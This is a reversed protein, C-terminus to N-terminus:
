VIIGAVSVTLITTSPSPKEVLEPYQLRKRQIHLIDEGLEQRCESWVHDPRSLNNSVLLMVFLSRLYSGSSWQSAQKIAEVYEKDDDLVGLEYCADKFTPCVKGNVTRIDEFCTPGKVKNLLIRLYYAEGTSPPVHHIRGLKFRQKRPSWCRNTADWVYKNPFETYTLKRADEDFTNREMWSTFMSHAVSPNEIIDHLDDDDDFIVSQEGPLHFPLREVAVTRYHIENGFIRWAAECASIYRCDYYEKIEDVNRGDVEGNEDSNTTVIGATIRDPGKNIYKFLYKIAGTQNCWEVNIHSQYRKLLFSNYPVVFGNNLVSDGKSVYCGNDRRRYLPYGADDVSTHQRFPKPFLKSCRKQDNMCPSKPNQTGCPGHLMFDAVLEYLEPDKSKDPIEASIINDVHQSTPFKYPAKLFLCIHSHPLGRKQFEITYVVAEVEGFVHNDKFDKIMSDLKMKFVRSLIDPRDESNLDKNNLFRVIEPWKPNCTFTIFLDPYGFHRVIAMADLYNQMMYRSGGTFSSPLIIRKGTNSAKTNGGIVNNRVDKYNDSRLKKKQSRIYSLREAEMMTYADVLFQQYLKKAMHLLSPTYLREQLYYAFYERITVDTHGSNNNGDVNRHKIGRRYGDQGLPFLLPYQLSLYGPHLESIRKLQGSKTEVIIDREEFSSDIDGVILGAVESATPLNYTRGDTNRRAILRLRLHQHPNEQFGDRAMIYSIVYPNCADLVKKIESILEPDLSDNSKEVGGGIRAANMRHHVENETDYIYLQSFKPNCGDNPLLSGTLHCNQGSLRFVYPGRGNNVSKDIKGGMSTFSFMNNYARVYKMFSKSKQHKNQYLRTFLLPPNPIEPLEVKGQGCCMSYSSKRGNHNNTLTESHWLIARCMSCISLPDGHDLYDKSIGYLKKIELLQSQQDPIKPIQIDFVPVVINPNVRAQCKNKRTAKPDRCNSINLNHTSINSHLLNNNQVETTHIGFSGRYDSPTDNLSTSGSLFIERTLVSLPTDLGLSDYHTRNPKHIAMNPTVCPDTSSPSGIYNIESFTSSSPHLSCQDLHPTGPSITSMVTSSDQVQLINQSKRRTNPLITTRHQTQQSSSTPSNSSLPNIILSGKSQHRQGCYSTYSNGIVSSNRQTLCVNSVNTLPSTSSRTYTSQQTINIDEATNTYRSVKKAASLLTRSSSKDKSRSTSAPLHNEKNANSHAGNSRRSNLVSISHQRVEKSSNHNM